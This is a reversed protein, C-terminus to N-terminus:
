IIDIVEFLPFTYLTNGNMQISMLKWSIAKSQIAKYGSMKINQQLQTKSSKLSIWTM